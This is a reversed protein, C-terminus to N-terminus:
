PKKANLHDAIRQVRQEVREALAMLKGGRDVRDTRSFLVRVPGCYLLSGPKDMPNATQTDRDIERKNTENGNDQKDVGGITTAM